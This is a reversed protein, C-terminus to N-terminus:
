ADTQIQPSSLPPTDEPDDFLEVVEETTTVRAAATFAHGLTGITSVTTTTTRQARPRLTRRMITSHTSVAEIRKRFYREYPEYAAFDIPEFEYNAIRGIIAAIWDAAQINQKLYSEVEFPPSALRMTPRHGYMTKTATELLEKRASHEDVVVVFNQDIAACCADIQRLADSLVTTYLGNPNVDERNRIKQRGCYFVRGRSEKVHNLIRFATKRIEPYLELSKATFLNSGKKEWEYPQKGSKHIDFSLLDTKRNLFYSAFPRVSHEPLLVGALGFVPSTNHRPHARGFFPGVHGFEDLYAFIM